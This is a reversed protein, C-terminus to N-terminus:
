SPNRPIQFGTGDTRGSRPRSLYGKEHIDKLQYTSARDDQILSATDYSNVVIAPQLPKYQCVGCFAHTPGSRPLKCCEGAWRVLATTHVLMLLWCRM